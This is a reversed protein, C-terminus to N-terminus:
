AIVIPLLLRHRFRNQRLIANTPIKKSIGLIYQCERCGVTVLHFHEIGPIGGLSQAREGQHVFRKMILVNSGIPSHHNLDWDLRHNRKRRGLPRHEQFKTLDATHLPDQLPPVDMTGLHFSQQGIARNLIDPRLRGLVYFEHDLHMGVNDQIRRIEIAVLIRQFHRTSGQKRKGIIQLGRGQSPRLPDTDDPDQRTTLFIGIGPEVINFATIVLQFVPANLHLRARRHERVQGEIALPINGSALAINCLQKLIGANIIDPLVIRGRGTERQIRFGDQGFGPM